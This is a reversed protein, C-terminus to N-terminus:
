WDRCFINQGLKAARGSISSVAAACNKSKRVTLTKKGCCGRRGDGAIKVAEAPKLSKGVLNRWRIDSPQNKYKVYDPNLVKMPTDIFLSPKLTCFSFEYAIGSWDTILLDSMFITSNSSFDTEIVFNENLRNQYREVIQQMKQPFRKIFEPHPRITISYDGGLLSEVMEDICSELINGEQWSPAILIRPRDGAVKEMAQYRAIM